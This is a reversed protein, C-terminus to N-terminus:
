RQCKELENNTFKFGKEEIARFDEKCLFYPDPHNTIVEEFVLDKENCYDTAINRFCQEDYKKFIISSCILLVVFFILVIILMISCIKILSDKLKKKAM